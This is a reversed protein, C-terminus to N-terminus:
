MRKDSIMYYMKWSSLDHHSSWDIGIKLKNQGWIIKKIEMKM